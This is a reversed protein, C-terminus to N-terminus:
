HVQLFGTAPSGIFGPPNGTGCVPVTAGLDYTLSSESTYGTQSSLDFNLGAGELYVGKTFTGATGTTFQNKGPDGTECDGAKVAAVTGSFITGSITGLQDKGQDVDRQATSSRPNSGRVEQMGHLREVLQAIAGCASQAEGAAAGRWHVLFRKTRANPMPTLSRNRCSVSM